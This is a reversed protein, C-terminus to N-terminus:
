EATGLLMLIGHLPLSKGMQCRGHQYIRKGDDSQM